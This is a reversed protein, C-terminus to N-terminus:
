AARSTAAHTLGRLDARAADTIPAHDLAALARATRQVIMQEVTAPAGTAAIVERLLGAEDQGLDPKGYLARIRGAQAPTAERRAMTILVTPKGDRLDDMTSKGTVAPDGFVGLLDDRLQFAEGLPIGFNTFARLLEPEAGALVAGIHLPREVTYKGTKYRIITLARALSDGSTQDLLDLAQGTMLETHMHHRVAQAERIRAAPLGCTDLMEQSWTLCLDGSLIGLPVGLTRHLSPRGRRTKSDDMIDDHILAFAHFLELSAAAVIIADDDEAGGAGRWGQYCFLPRLRKGGSLVFDRIGDFIPTLEPPDTFVSAKSDFFDALARDVRQSLGPVPARNNEVIPTCM